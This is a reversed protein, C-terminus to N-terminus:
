ISRLRNYIFSNRDPLEIYQSELKFRFDKDDSTFILEKEKIVLKYTEILCIRNKHISMTMM